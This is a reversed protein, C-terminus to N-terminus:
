LYTQEPSHTCFARDLAKKKLPFAWDHFSERIDFLIEIVAFWTEWSEQTSRLKVKTYPYPFSFQKSM